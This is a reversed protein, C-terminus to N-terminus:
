MISSSTTGTSSLFSLLLGKALVVPVVRILVNSLHSGDQMAAFRILAPKPRGAQFNGACVTLSFGLLFTQDVKLVGNL